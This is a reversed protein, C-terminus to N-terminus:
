PIWRVQHYEDLRITNMLVSGIWRFKHYEDLSKTNM